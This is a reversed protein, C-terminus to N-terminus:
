NLISFESNLIICSISPFAVAAAMLASIASSTFSIARCDMMQAYLGYTLTLKCALMADLSRLLYRKSLGHQPRLHSITEESFYNEPKSNISIFDNKM